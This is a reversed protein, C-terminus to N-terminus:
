HLWKPFREPPNELVSFYLWGISEFWSSPNCVTTLHWPPLSPILFIFFIFLLSPGAPDQMVLHSIDLSHILFYLMKYVTRLHLIPHLWCSALWAIKCLPVFSVELTECVLYMAAKLSAIGTEESLFLWIGLFPFGLKKLARAGFESQVKDFRGRPLSVSHANWERIREDPSM